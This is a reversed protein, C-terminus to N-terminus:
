VLGGGSFIKPKLWDQPSNGEKSPAEQREVSEVQKVQQREFGGQQPIAPAPPQFQQPQFPQVRPQFSQQGPLSPPFSSAPRGSKKIAGAKLLQAMTEFTDANVSYSTLNNTALSIGSYLNTAIDKDIPAQLGTIVKYILESTSSSTKNVFNITGFFGNTLHRDINIINKGQFQAQNESYIAGLSNLNPADIAILFDFSGGTYTFRVQDPNLKPFGNRPAIVLNFFQGQIQYDIKDIAGDSYPFSVVLSDGGVNLSSQFKDVGAFEGTVPSACVLYVSKSMKILALYLSTAAAVADMSPNQPLAIVGSSGKAIVETIRTQTNATPNM